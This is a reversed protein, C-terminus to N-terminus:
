FHSFLPFFFLFLFTFFPSIQHDTQTVRAHTSTTHLVPGFAPPHLWFRVPRARQAPAACCLPKPLVAEVPRCGPRNARLAGQWSSRARGMVHFHLRGAAHLLSAWSPTPGRSPTCGLIPSRPGLWGSTTWSFNTNSPSTREKKKQHRHNPLYKPM